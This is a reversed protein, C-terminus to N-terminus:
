PHGKIDSGDTYVWEEPVFKPIWPLPHTPYGGKDNKFYAM